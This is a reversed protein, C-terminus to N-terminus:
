ADHVLGQAATPEKRIVERLEATMGDVTTVCFVAGNADPLAPIECRTALCGDEGATGRGLELRRGDTAVLRVVVEAGTMPRESNAEIVRMRLISSADEVIQPPHTWELALRDVAQQDGLYGLVVEDLSRDTIVRHGFPKPGESDFKGNYIDRITAKHQTELLRQVAKENYDDTGVIEEYSTQRKAIIEGGTYILTEILPNNLGRDETQVHFVRGQHDIDMNYGTIM